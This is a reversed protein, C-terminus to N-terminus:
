SVTVALSSLGTYGTETVGTTAPDEVFTCDSVNATTAGIVGCSFTGGTGGSPAAAVAKGAADAAFTLTITNVQNKTTTDFFGYGVTTLTAGSVAQSVTGGVFQASAATGSTTVGTGTFASGAAVALGAVSLATIIKASKRM